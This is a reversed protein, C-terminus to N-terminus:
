KDRAFGGISAKREEFNRNIEDKYLMPEVAAKELQPGAANAIGCALWHASAILRFRRGKRWAAEVSTIKIWWGRQHSWWQGGAGM